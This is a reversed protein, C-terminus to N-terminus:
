GLRGHLVSGLATLGHRLALRAVARRLNPREPTSAQGGSHGKPKRGATRVDDGLNGLDARAADGANGIRDKLDTGDMGRASKKLATKVTRYTGKVDDM